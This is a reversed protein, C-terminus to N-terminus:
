LAYSYTYPMLWFICLCRTKNSTKKFQEFDDFHSSVKKVHEFAAFYGIKKFQEFDDFHSSVNKVREFGAFYGIKWFAKM